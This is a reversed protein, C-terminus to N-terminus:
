IKTPIAGLMTSGTHTQSIHTVEAIGIILQLPIELYFQRGNTNLIYEKSRLRGTRISWFTGAKIYCTTYLFARLEFITMTPKLLPLLDRIHQVTTRM